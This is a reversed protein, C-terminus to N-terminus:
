QRGSAVAPEQVRPRARSGTVPLDLRALEQQAIAQRLPAASESAAAGWVARLSGPLRPMVRGAVALGKASSIGLVGLERRSHLSRLIALM